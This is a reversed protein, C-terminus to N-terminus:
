GVLDHIQNLIHKRLLLIDDGGEQARMQHEKLALFCEELEYAKRIRAYLERAESSAERVAIFPYANVAAERVCALSSNSIIYIIGLIISEM